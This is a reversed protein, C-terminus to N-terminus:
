KKLYVQALPRWNSIFRKSLAETAPHTRLVCHTASHDGLCLYCCKSRRLAKELDYKSLPAKDPFGLQRIKGLALESHNVGVQIAAQAYPSLPRLGATDSYPVHKRGQDQPHIPLVIGTTKGRKQSGQGSDSRKSKSPQAPELRAALEDPRLNLLKAAAIRNQQATNKGTDSQRDSETDNEAPATQLHM